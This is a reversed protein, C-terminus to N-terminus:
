RAYKAADSAGSGFKWVEEKGLIGANNVPVDLVGFGSKLKQAAAKISEDSTIDLELFSLTGAPKRVQIENLAELARSAPVPVWSTTTQRTMPSPTPHKM